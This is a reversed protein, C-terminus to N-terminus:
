AARTKETVMSTKTGPFIMTPRMYSVTPMFSVVMIRERPRDAEATMSAKAVREGRGM